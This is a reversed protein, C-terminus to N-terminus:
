ANDGGHANTKAGPVSAPLTKEQRAGMRRRKIGFKNEDQGGSNRRLKLMAPGTAIMKPDGRKKERAGIRTSNKKTSNPANGM